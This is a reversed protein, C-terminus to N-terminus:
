YRARDSSIKELDGSVIIRKCELKSAYEHKKIRNEVHNTSSLPAANKCDGLMVSLSVIRRQMKNNIIILIKMYRREKELKTRERM